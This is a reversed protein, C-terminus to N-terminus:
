LVVGVSCDVVAGFAAYPSRYGANSPVGRRIAGRANPSVKASRDGMEVAGVRRGHERWIM